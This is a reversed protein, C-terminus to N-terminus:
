TAPTPAAPPASFEKKLQEQNQIVQLAVQLVAVLRQGNVKANGEPQEDVLKQLAPLANQLADVAGTQGTAAQAVKLATQAGSVVKGIFEQDSPSFSALPVAKAVTDLNLQAERIRYQTADAGTPAATCGAFLLALLGIIVYKKM